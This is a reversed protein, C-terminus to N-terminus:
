SRCGHKARQWHNPHTQISVAPEAPAKAMPQAGGHRRRHTSDQYAAAASSVLTFLEQGWVVRTALLELFGPSHHRLIPM